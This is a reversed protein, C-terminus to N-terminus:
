ELVTDCHGVYLIHIVRSIKSWQLWKMLAGSSHGCGLCCQSQSIRIIFLDMNAPFDKILNVISFFFDRIQKHETAAEGTKENKPAQRMLFCCLAAPSSLFLDTPQLRM